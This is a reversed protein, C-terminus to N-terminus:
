LCDPVSVNSLTGAGTILMLLLGFGWLVIQAPVTKSIPSDAMGVVRLVSRRTNTGAALLQLAASNLTPSRM